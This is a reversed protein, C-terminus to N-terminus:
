LQLTSVEWVTAGFVLATSRPSPQPLVPTLKSIRLGLIMTQHSSPIAPHRSALVRGVVLGELDKDSCNEWLYSSLYVVCQLKDRPWAQFLGRPLLENGHDPFPM